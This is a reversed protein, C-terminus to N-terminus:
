APKERFSWYLTTSDNKVSNGLELIKYDPANWSLFHGDSATWVFRADAPNFGTSNVSLRVGPTPSMM